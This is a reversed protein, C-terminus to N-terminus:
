CGFLSDHLQLKLSANFYVGEKRLSMTHKQPYLIRLRRELNVLGIGSTKDRTDHVADNYKNHVSLHLERQDVLL